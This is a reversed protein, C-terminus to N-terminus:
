SSTSITVRADPSEARRPGAPRGSQALFGDPVVPIAGDDVQLPVEVAVAGPDDLEEQM